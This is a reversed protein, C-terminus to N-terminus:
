LHPTHLLHVLWTVLPFAPNTRLWDYPATVFESAPKDALSSQNFQPYIYIIDLPVAALIGDDV